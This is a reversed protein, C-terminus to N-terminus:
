HKFNPLYYGAAIAELDDDTSLGGVGGSPGGSPVGGPPVIGGPGGQPGGPGGVGPRGTPASGVSGGGGGNYSRDSPGSGPISGQYSSDESPPSQPSELPYGRLSARPKYFPSRLSDVDDELDDSKLGLAEDSASRMLQSRLFDESDVESTDFNSGPTIVAGPTTARRREQVEYLRSDGPGPGGPATGSASLRPTQPQRGVEGAEGGGGRDGGGRPLTAVGGGGGGGQNHHGSSSRRQAAPDSTSPGRHPFQGVGFAPDEHGQSHTRSVSFHRHDPGPEHLDDSGNPSMAHRSSHELQRILDELNRIRIPAAQGSGASGDPGDLKERSSVKMAHQQKQAAAAAGQALAAVVAAQSPPAGMPGSPGPILGLSAGYEFYSDALTKRLDETLSAASSRHNSGAGGTNAGGGAGLGFSNSSNSGRQSSTTAAANRLAEILSEHYGNVSSKMTDAQASQQQQQVQQVNLQNQSSMSLRDLRELRSLRDANEELWKDKDLSPVEMQSGYPCPKKLIGGGPPGYGADALMTNSGHGQGQHNPPPRGPTGIPKMHQMGHVGDGRMSPPAFEMSDVPRYPPFNGLGGLKGSVLGGLKGADEFTHDPTLHQSPHPSNPHSYGKLMQRKAYPPDYKPLASKRRYCLAMLAFLIFVGGVGAVLVIVMIITDSDSEKLIYTNSDTQSADPTPTTVKQPQNPDIFPTITPVKKSCDNGGLGLDCVCTNINSCIGQGSCEVNNADVPCRTYTAYQQMDICTRNMCMKQNGCKTGDTVQGLDIGIEADYSGSMVKCQIEKGDVTQTHSSYTTGPIRPKSSGEQCHLTGCAINEIECPKFGGSYPRTGCNGSQTGGMNFKQYCAKDGPSAKHGWVEKCQSRM